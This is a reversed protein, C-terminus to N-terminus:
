STDLIITSAWLWKAESSCEENVYLTQSSIIWDDPKNGYIFPVLHELSTGANQSHRLKKYNFGSAAYYKNISSKFVRHFTQEISEQSFNTHRRYIRNNKCTEM